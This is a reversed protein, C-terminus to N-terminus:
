SGKSNENKYFQHLKGNELVFGYIINPEDEFVVEVSYEYPFSTAKDVEYLTWSKAPFKSTLEQKIDSIFTEYQNERKFPLAIEIVCYFVIIAVMVGYILKRFTNKLFLTIMFLIIIGNIFIILRTNDFDM